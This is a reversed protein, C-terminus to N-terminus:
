GGGTASNMGGDPHLISGTFTAAEDSCLFLATNAIDLPTPLTGLPLQAARHDYWAQQADADDGVAQKAIGALMETTVYAPGIANVRIRHPALEGALSRTLMWVAAKSVSYAGASPRKAAISALTVISGGHGAAIMLQAARQATLFVGRVNVNHVFDFHQPELDLLGRFGADPHAAVGASAICLDVGGLATAAQDIANRISSVDLVDGAVFQATAGTDNLEAVLAGGREAMAPLDILAVAAGEDVFRRAIAAGLGSAGGTIIARKQELRAM